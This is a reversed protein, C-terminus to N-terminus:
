HHAVVTAEVGDLGIFERGKALAVTDMLESCKDVYGFQESRKHDDNQEGPMGSDRHRCQSGGPIAEVLHGVEEAAGDRNEQHAIGDNRRDDNEGTPFTSAARGEVDVILVQRGTSM